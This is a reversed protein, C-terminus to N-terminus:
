IGRVQVHLRQNIEVQDVLVQAVVIGEVGAGEDRAFAAALELEAGQPVEVERSAVDAEVAVIRGDAPVQAIRRGRGGDVDILEEGVGDERLVDLCAPVVELLLQRGQLLENALAGVGQLFT